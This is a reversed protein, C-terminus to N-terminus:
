RAREEKAMRELERFIDPLWLLRTGRERGKGMRAQRIRPNGVFAAYFAAHGLHTYPCKERRSQIPPRIWIAPATASPAAERADTDDAGDAPPPPFAAATAAVANLQDGNGPTKSTTISKM